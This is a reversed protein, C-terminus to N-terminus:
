KKAIRELHKKWEEEAWEAFEKMAEIMEPLKAQEEAEEQDLVAQRYRLWCQREGPDTVWELHWDIIQIETM